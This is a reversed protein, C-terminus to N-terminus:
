FKWTKISIYYPTMNYPMSFMTNPPKVLRLYQRQREGKVGWESLRRSIIFLLLYLKKAGLHRGTLTNLHRVEGMKAM